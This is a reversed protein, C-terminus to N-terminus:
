NQQHHLYPSMFYVTFHFHEKKWPFLGSSLKLYDKSPWLVGTWVCVWASMQGFFGIVYNLSIQPNLQLWM